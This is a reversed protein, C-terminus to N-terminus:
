FLPLHNRESQMCLSGDLVIWEEIKVVLWMSMFLRAPTPKKTRSSESPKKTNMWVYLFPCLKARRPSRFPSCSWWSSADAHRPVETYLLFEWTAPSISINRLMQNAEQPPPSKLGSTSYGRIIQFQAFVSGNNVPRPLGSSNRCTDTYLLQHLTVMEEAFGRAPHLCQFTYELTNWQHLRVIPLM